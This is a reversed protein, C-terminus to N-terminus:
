CLNIRLSVSYLSFFKYCLDLLRRSVYKKLNWMCDHNISFFTESNWALVQIEFTMIMKINLSKLHYTTTQKTSISPIMSLWQKFSEKWSSYTIATQRFGPGPKSCACFTAPDFL